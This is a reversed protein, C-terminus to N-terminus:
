ELREMPQSGWLGKDGADTGRNRKLIAMRPQERGETM